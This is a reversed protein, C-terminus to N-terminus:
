LSLFFLAVGFHIFQQIWAIKIESIFYRTNQLNNTSLRKKKWVWSIIALASLDPNTIIKFFFSDGSKDIQSIYTQM